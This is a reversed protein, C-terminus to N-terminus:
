VLEKRKIPLFLNILDSEITESSADLCQIGLRRLREFVILRERMIDDAMVARTVDTLSRPSADITAGIRPDALTVFVIMHRAALRTLNEVMLEATVTDVFETPLIVLSCRNLRGLLAALGLTFNTEEHRYELGACALQLRRFSQIGAMPQVTSRVQSDFGFVGIRDGGRLSLQGLRLGANIAHDLRPIGGLPESMLQGTDFALIIQHNREARFEKCVLARHRASHKWDISRHDLGQVYDRLAEFDSGEGQQSQPKFGFLADRSSFRIAAQRVAGIDPIVPINADVPEMRERQMLGLPGRWCLWLREVRATGRRRPTLPIDLCAAGDPGLTTAQIPPVILIDGVDCAAEIATGRHGAPASLAVVLTGRDGIHLVPPPTVAIGLARAPLARLGDLGTLFVAL